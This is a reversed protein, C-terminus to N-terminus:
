LRFLLGVPLATLSPRTIRVTCVRQMRVMIIPLLVSRSPQTDMTNLRVGTLAIVVVILTFQCIHIRTELHTDFRRSEFFSTLGVMLRQAMHLYPSCKATTVLTSNTDNFPRRDYENASCASLLLFTSDLLTPQRGSSTSASTSQKIHMFVESSRPGPFSTQYDQPGIELHTPANRLGGSPCTLNLM